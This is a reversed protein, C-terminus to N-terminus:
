FSYKVSVSVFDRDSLDNGDGAYRTYGIDAQWRSLYDARLGITLATRGEVFPGSPAPSNGNVDHLFQAYPFLNVSGIANNYDLRAAVRYGWSTADADPQESDETARASTVGGAPSELPEVDKDPMGHVHMLAAETLFVLGDAGFVPGFVRTATAQIQSVDREVYGQVKRPRYTGVHTNLSDQFFQAPLLQGNAPNRPCGETSPDSACAAMELARIVPSLGETLVTREARQLPADPRLSYEGQLAWGSTGLATNFSVGLLRIDEPYELFYEGSRNTRDAYRDIALAGAIGGVAEGVVAPNLLEAIAMDIAAQAHAPDILGVEVGARVTAQIGQTIGDVIASQTHSGPASVANAAALAGQVAEPSSTQAGVFPLRSHYNMAYFGFETDNLEEALYRLAVGWQGADDPSRDPGRLVSAFDPDPSALPPLPVPVTGLQPHVVVNGALDANIAPTLPGFGSRRDAETTRCEDDVGPVFCDAVQTVVAERAGPGVYDTVSYFSGVPDIETEEWDFQYFAEVSLNDTPAVAVSAMWVPLLAERLESGPRRLKSVDFPNIANIGNPIFTSEGWNLVHRGIRADIITNGVDFTSTVYADLLEIDKGVREKADESLPTREREGNQNEFDIFGTARVFAGFNGTGIDLDTTFKSANSVVGRDYNLNGDNSNTKGALEPNRREVRFTLGHSMTTDLSGQFEGDGFEIAQVPPGCLLGGLALAGAALRSGRFSPPLTESRAPAGAPRRTRRLRAAGADLVNRM